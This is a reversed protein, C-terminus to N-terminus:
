VVQLCFSSTQLGILRGNTGTSYIYSQCVQTDVVCIVAFIEVVMNKIKYESSTLLQVITTVVEANRVMSALGDDTNMLAKLIALIEQQM